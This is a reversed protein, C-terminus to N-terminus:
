NKKKKIKIIDGLTVDNSNSHSTSFDIDEIEEVIEVGFNNKIKEAFDLTPTFDGSEIHRIVSLKENLKQAFEKQTMNESERLNKIIESFNKVIRQEIEIEEKEIKKPHVIKKTPENKIKNIVKGMKSCENCVEINSGEINALVSCESKGCIECNKM